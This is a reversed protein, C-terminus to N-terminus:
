LVQTGKFLEVHREVIAGPTRIVISVLGRTSHFLAVITFIPVHTQGIAKSGIDRIWRLNPNGAEARAGGLIATEHM